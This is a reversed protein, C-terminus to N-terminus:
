HGTNTGTCGLEVIDARQDTTHYGLFDDLDDRLLVHGDVVCADEIANLALGGNESDSSYLYKVVLLFLHREYPIKIAMLVAYRPTKGHRRM